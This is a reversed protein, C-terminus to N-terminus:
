GTVGKFLAFAEADDVLIKLGYAKSKISSARVDISPRNEIESKYFKDYLELKEGVYSSIDVFVNPNFGISSPSEFFWVSCKPVLRICSLVIRNVARHDQHTDNPFHTLIIDPKVEIIREEIHHRTIYEFEELSNAPVEFCKWSACRAETALKKSNDNRRTGRGDGREGDSVIVIHFNIGASKWRLLTGGLSFWEDDPHAAFVLVNETM